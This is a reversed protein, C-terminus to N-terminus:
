KPADGGSALREKLSPPLESTANECAMCAWLWEAGAQQLQSVAADNALLSDLLQTVSGNRVLMLHDHQVRAVAQRAQMEPNLALLLAQQLEGPDHEFFAPQPPPQPMFARSGIQAFAHFPMPCGQALPHADIQEFEQASVYSWEPDEPLEYPDTAISVPEPLPRKAKAATKKQPQAPKTGTTGSASTTTAQTEKYRKVLYDPRPSWQPAFDHLAQKHTQGAASAFWHNVVYRMDLALHKTETPKVDDLVYQYCAQIAEKSMRKHFLALHARDVLQWNELRSMDQGCRYVYCPHGAQTVAWGLFEHALQEDKERPTLRRADCELQLERERREVALKRLAQEGLKKAGEGSPQLSQLSAADMVRVQPNPCLVTQLALHAARRSGCRAGWNHAHTALLVDLCFASLGTRQALNEM